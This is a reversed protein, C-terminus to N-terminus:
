DPGAFDPAPLADPRVGTIGVRIQMTAVPDATQARQAIMAPLATQDVANCVRHPGIGPETSMVVRCAVYLTATAESWPLSGPMGRLPYADEALMVRVPRHPDDIPQGDHLTPMMRMPSLIHVLLPLMPTTAGDTVSCHGIRGTHDIACDLHVDARQSLAFNVMMTHHPHIVPVGNRMAPRYLAASAYSLAAADFRHDTSSTIACNQSTGTATITCALGVSGEVFLKQLAAPYSLTANHLAVPPTYDPVPGAACLALDALLWGAQVISRMRM